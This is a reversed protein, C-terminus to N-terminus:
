CKLILRLNLLNLLFNKFDNLFSASRTKDPRFVSLKAEHKLVQYFVAALKKFQVYGEGLILGCFLGVYYCLLMPISFLRLQKNVMKARNIIYSTCNGQGFKLNESKSLFNLIEWESKERAKSFTNKRSMKRVQPIRTDHM